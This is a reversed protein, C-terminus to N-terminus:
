CSAGSRHHSHFVLREKRTEAGKEPRVAKVTKRLTGSTQSENGMDM